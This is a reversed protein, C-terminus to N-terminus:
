GFWILAFAAAFIAALVVGALVVKGTIIPEFRPPGAPYGAPTSSTMSPLQLPQAPSGGMPLSPGSPGTPLRPGGGSRNSAARSVVTVLGALVVVGGLILWIAADSVGPGLVIRLINRLPAALILLLFVWTGCGPGQGKAPKPRPTNATLNM